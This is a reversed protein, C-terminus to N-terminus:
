KYGRRNSDILLAGGFLFVGFWSVWPAIVLISIVSTVTCEEPLKGRPINIAYFVILGLLMMGVGLLYTEM